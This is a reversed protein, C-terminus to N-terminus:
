EKFDLIDQKMENYYFDMKDKYIRTIPYERTEPKSKWTLHVVAIRGDHLELVIEDNNTKQAILDVDTNYLIHNNSLELKLEHLLSSITKEDMNIAKQYPELYNLYFISPNLLNELHDTNLLHSIVKEICNRTLEKVFLDPPTQYLGNLNDGNKEDYERTTSLYDYTWITIGYLRGDLTNVQINAFDNELNEWPNTVEFELWLKYPQDSNKIIKNSLSSNPYNINKINM